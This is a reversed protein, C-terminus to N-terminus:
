IELKAYHAQINGNEMPESIVTESIVPCELTYSDPNDEVTLIVPTDTYKADGYKVTALFEFTFPGTHGKPDVDTIKYRSADAKANKAYIQLSEGADSYNKDRFNMTIDATGSFAGTFEINKIEFKLHQDDGAAGGTIGKVVYLFEDNAAMVPLVFAAILVLAMLIMFFNKGMLRRM